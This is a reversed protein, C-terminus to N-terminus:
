EGEVFATHQVFVGVLANTIPKTVGIHLPGYVTVANNTATLEVASGDKFLASWVTGGDTTVLIPVVEASELLPASITVPILGKTCIFGQETIEAGTAPTILTILAM